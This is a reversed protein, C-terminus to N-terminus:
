RTLLIHGAVLLGVSWMTALHWRRLTPRYIGPAQLNLGLFTQLALGVLAMLALWADTSSMVRMNGMAIAAHLAALSLVAYGLVFHPRLRRVYAGSLFRRLIWGAIGTVPFLASAGWAAVDGGSMSLVTSSKAPARVRPPL